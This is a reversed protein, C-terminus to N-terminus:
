SRTYDLGIAAEEFDRLITLFYGTLDRNSEAARSEVVRMVRLIERVFLHTFRSSQGKIAM